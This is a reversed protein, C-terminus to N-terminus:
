RASAWDDLLDALAVLMNPDMAVAGAAKAAVQAGAFSGRRAAGGGEPRGGECGEGLRQNATEMAQPLVRQQMRRQACHTAAQICLTAALKRGM